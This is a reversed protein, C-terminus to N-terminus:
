RKALLDGREQKAVRQRMEYIKTEDFNSVVGKTALHNLLALNAALLQKVETSDSTSQQSYSTSGSSSFGGNAFGSGPLTTSQAHPSFGLRRMRMPEVVGGIFSRVRPTELEEGAVVYENAHVIGVPQYKEGEGTFGGTYLSKVKNREARAKAVQAIGNATIIVSMIANFIAAAPYPMTNNGWVSMAAQATSAIIQGIKMGFDIDAYKKKVAKIKKEKEEELKAVQTKDNGALEIKRDYDAELNIIETEQLTSAFDAATSFLANVQALNEQLKELKDTLYKDEIEAKAAEYIETYELMSGNHEETYKKIEAYKTKLQQLEKAKLEEASLIQYEELFAKRKEEFDQAVKLEDAAQNRKHQAITDSMQQEFDADSQTIEKLRASLATRSTLIEENARKKTDGIGSSEKKEMQLILESKKASARIVNDFYDSDANIRNIYLQALRDMEAKDLQGYKARLESFAVISKDTSEIMKKNMAIIADQANIAGEGAGEIFLQKRVKIADAQEELLKNYEDAQNILDKNVEYNNLNQLVMEETIDFKKFDNLQATIEADAISKKITSEDKELQIIKDIATVREDMTKLVDRYIARQKKVELNTAAESITQGRKRDEIIDMAAVYDKGAKIARDINTFFNSFNGTAMSKKFYDWASTMAGITEEFRDATTDTSELVSKGFRLAGWVTGLGIGLFGATKTLTGMVGTTQQTGARVKGMQLQTEQLERNYKNWKVPDASQSINNLQGRLENARKKLQNYSMETIKLQSNLKGLEEKNKAVAEKNSKLAAENRKYEETNKKGQSELKNKIFLLNKEKQTLDKIASNVKIIEDQTQRAGTARIESEIIEKQISM